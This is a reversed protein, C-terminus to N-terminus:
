AGRVFRRGTSPLPNSRPSPCGGGRKRCAEDPVRQVQTLPVTTDGIVGSM